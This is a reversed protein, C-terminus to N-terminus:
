WRQRTNARPELLNALDGIDSAVHSLRAVVLCSAEGTALLALAHRLGARDTACQGRRADHCIQNLHYGRHHCAGEITAAHPSPTPGHTPGTLYGVATPRPTSGNTDDPTAPHQRAAGLEDIDHAPAWFPHPKTPDSVLYQSDSVWGAPRPDDPVSVAKVIGRFPGIAPDPSSGQVWLEYIPGEPGDSRERRRRVLWLVAATILALAALAIAAWQWWEIGLWTGAAAASAATPAAARRATDTAASGQADHDASAQAERDARAQAATPAPRRRATPAPRRRATPAPRRRATPAPRRQRDARAAARRDAGASARTAARREARRLTESPAARLARLTGLGVVGNVGLRHKHEFWGVAAQTRRGFVGDVRGPQTAWAGCGASSRVSGTLGAGCAVAM